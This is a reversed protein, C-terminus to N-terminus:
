RSLMQEEIQNRLPFATGYVNGLMAIKEKREKIRDSKLKAQLPHPAQADSKASPLGQRLVDVPEHYLPMTTEMDGDDGRESEEEGSRENKRSRARRERERNQKSFFQM